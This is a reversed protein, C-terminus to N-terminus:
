ITPLTHQSHAHQKAIPPACRVSTIHLWSRHEIGTAIMPARRGGTAVHSLTLTVTGVESSGSRRPIYDITAIAFPAVNSRSTTTRVTASQLTVRRDQHHCHHWHEAESNGSGTQMKRKRKRRTGGGGSQRASTRHGYDTRPGDEHQPLRDHRGPRFRHLLRVRDGCCRGVRERAVGSECSYDDARWQGAVPQSVLHSGLHRGCRREVVKAMVTKTKNDKVVIIPMVKGEKKEQESRTYVYDLSVTPM